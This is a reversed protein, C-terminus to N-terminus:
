LEEIHAAILQVIAPDFHRGSESLIYQYAQDRTM